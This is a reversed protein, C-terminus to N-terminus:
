RRISEPIRSVGVLVEVEHTGPDRSDDFYGPHLTIIALHVPVNVWARVAYFSDAGRDDNPRARVFAIINAERPLLAALKGPLVVYVRGGGEPRASATVRVALPLLELGELPTPERNGCGIGLPGCGVGFLRRREPLPVLEVSVTQGAPLLGADAAVSRGLKVPHNLDGAPGTVRSLVFEPEPLDWRRTTVPTAHDHPAFRVTLPIPDEISTTAEQINCEALGDTLRLETPFFLEVDFSFNGVSDTKSRQSTRTAPCRLDLSLGELPQGGRTHTGNVTARASVWQRPSPQEPRCTGITDATEPGEYPFDPHREPLTRLSIDGLNVIGAAPAIFRVVLVDQPREVLLEYCGAPGRARLAFAGSPGLLMGVRLNPISIPMGPGDDPTLRIRGRM